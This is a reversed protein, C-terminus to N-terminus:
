IIKAHWGLFNQLILCFFFHLHWIFCHCIVTNEISYCQKQRAHEIPVWSNNIFLDGKETLFRLYTKQQQERHTIHLMGPSNSENWFHQHLLEDSKWGQGARHTADDVTPYVAVRSKEKLRIPLKSWINASYECLWNLKKPMTFSFTLSSCTNSCLQSACPTNVKSSQSRVALNRSQRYIIPHGKPMHNGEQLKQSSLQLLFLKCFM